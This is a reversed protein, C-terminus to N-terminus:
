KRDFLSSSTATHNGSELQTDVGFADLGLIDTHPDMFLKHTSPKNFAVSGTSRTQATASSATSWPVNQSTPAHTGLEIMGGDGGSRANLTSLLANSYLKPIGFDFVFSLTSNPLAVFLAVDLITFAVTVGGTQITNKVIRNITDDTRSVGSRRLRLSLVLSATIMIDAAAASCSWILATKDVMPKHAYDKVHYVIVATWAAGVMSTLSTLCILVPIIYHRMIVSIRWAYFFQVPVFIAAELFPQSPLLAPFLTVPLPTGFQGILPSYIMAVCMGTNVTEVVFIYLVFYRLWPKDNKYGQYYTITQQVLLGFLFTNLVVGIFYPALLAEPTLPIGMPDLFSSSPTRLSIYLPLLPPISSAAFIMANSSRSITM